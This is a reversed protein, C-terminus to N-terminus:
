LWGATSRVSRLPWTLISACRLHGSVFDVWDDPLRVFWRLSPLPAPLLFFYSHHLIFPLLLRTTPADTKAKRSRRSLFGRGAIKKFVSNISRHWKFEDLDRGVPLAPSRLLQVLEEPAPPDSRHLLFKDGIALIGEPRKANGGFWAIWQRAAFRLLLRPNWTARLQIGSLWSGGAAAPPEPPRPPAVLMACSSDARGSHIVEFTM